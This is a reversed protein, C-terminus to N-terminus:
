PGEAYVIGFQTFYNQPHDDYVYGRVASKTRTEPAKYTAPRFIAGDKRRVFGFIRSSHSSWRDYRDIWIKWYVRGKECRVTLREDTVAWDNQEDQDKQILGIFRQFHWDIEEQPRYMNM